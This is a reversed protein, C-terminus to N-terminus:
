VLHVADMDVSVALDRRPKIGGFAARIAAGVGKASVGRLLIQYRFQNKARALPAAAADSVVIGKGAVDRLRASIGRAVDAVAKEDAGRALVCALHSFPPYLLEQRFTLEQDCFGAFDLRRAAQIAPHMPSYTQVIVEGPVDGRGARGGVQALLQFTREGARFDPMNLSQDAHVVGVLTVNPIHLGKAIMQTGILIHIRGSRFADLIEEHAMRRRTVDSDLREVSAKPFCKRVVEEIRQTGCGAFRYAPDGCGPCCRPVAKDTGCVHCRLVEGIRHYTCAVSCHECQAVFGCKPCQLSTAYGRRNHFLICQEGRDLRMRIAEVLESSIFGGKGTASSQQRMDVIRMVPMVRHDVRHPMTALAYKGGRANQWSELSPTASGLVVVCRELRGRMVAVDRASYRPAEDQKYSPEHEEDVVVLGLRPVPAFVASRAGVVIDCEGSRIRHWEDHREGDTLHSHLVAVRNGFRSVFREVTQPTLAIEPVLVIAGLGRDRVDAIAQLYVETKGSGTVGHLLITFPGGDGSAQEAAGFRRSVMNRVQELATQQQPMLPLPDTPLVIRNANPDRRVTVEEVVVIGRKELSRVPAESIGLAAILETLATAGNEALFDLVRRQRATTGGGVGSASHGARHADSKGSVDSPDSLRNATGAEEQTAMRVTLLQRGGKVSRVPAPLMTRLVAELPTMYYEAVWRALALIPERFLPGDGVVSLIPKLVPHESRDALAVVYGHCVRRGFSVEVRCGVQVRGAFGAPISYDFERDLSQEVVVRAVCHNHLMSDGNVEIPRLIAFV